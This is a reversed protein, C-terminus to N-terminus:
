CGHRTIALPERPKGEDTEWGSKEGCIAARIADARWPVVADAYKTLADPVDSEAAGHTWVGVIRKDHRQAYEIEFDVYESERMGPSVLVVVAGAWDIRPALISHKIYEPNHADNRRESTISSNKVDFGHESLLSKMGDIHSEDEHIHSVFVNRTEAM